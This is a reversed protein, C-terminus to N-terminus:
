ALLLTKTVKNNRIKKYASKADEIGGSGIFTMKGKSEKYMQHLISNSLEFLPRGSLGGNALLSKVIETHDNEAALRLPTWGYKDKANVDAGKEILFEVIETHGERAAYHLTTQEYKNKANVDAGKEILNKLSETNNQLAAIYFGHWYDPKTFQKKPLVIATIGM